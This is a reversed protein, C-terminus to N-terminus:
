LGLVGWTHVHSGGTHKFPGWHGRCAAVRSDPLRSVRSGSFWTIVAAATSFYHFRHWGMVNWAKASRNKAHKGQGINPCGIPAVFLGDRSLLSEFRFRDVSAGIIKSPRSIGQLPHVFVTLHLAIMTGNQMCLQGGVLCELAVPPVGHQM